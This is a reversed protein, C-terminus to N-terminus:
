VSQRFGDLVGKYFDAKESQVFVQVTSVNVPSSAVFTGYKEPQRLIDPYPMVDTLSSYVGAGTLREIIERPCKDYTLYQSVKRATRVMVAPPGESHSVSDFIAGKVDIPVLAAMFLVHTPIHLPNSGSYNPHVYSLDKADSCIFRFQQKNVLGLDHLRDILKRSLALAEPDIDILNFTWNSSFMSLLLTTMPLAGSGPFSIHLPQQSSYGAGIVSIMFGEAAVAAEYFDLNPYPSLFAELKLVKGARIREDQTANTPLTIDRCDLVSGLPKQLAAEVVRKEFDGETVGRLQKLEVSRARLQPDTKIARYVDYYDESHIQRILFRPEVALHMVNLHQEPNAPLGTTQAFVKYKSLLSTPSEDFTKKLFVDPALRQQMLKLRSPDTVLPRFGPKNYTSVVCPISQANSM